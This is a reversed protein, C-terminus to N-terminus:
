QSKGPPTVLGPEKMRYVYRGFWEEFSPATLFGHEGEFYIHIEEAIGNKLIAQYFVLSNAVPVRTDAGSFV